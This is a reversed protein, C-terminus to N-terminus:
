RRDLRQWVRDLGGFAFPQRGVTTETSSPSGSSGGPPPRFGDPWRTDASYIVGALDAGRLDAGSLDASTLDAGALRAAPLAATSLRAETLNAGSLDAESLDAGSLDTKEFNSGAAAVNRLDAGQLNAKTLDARELRASRLIAASLDAGALSAETLVAGTLQWGPMKCDQLACGPLISRWFTTKISSWSRDDDQALQRRYAISRVISQRVEREGAGSLGDPADVPELMPVRIYARLLDVCVRREQDNGFAHWDDSLAVLAYVGAMRVAPSNDALQGAISTYRDRLAIEGERAATERHHKDEQRRVLHGNLLILCAATVAGAGTFVTALPQAAITWFARTSYTVSVVTVAAAGGILLISAAAIVLPLKQVRQPKTSKAGRMSM